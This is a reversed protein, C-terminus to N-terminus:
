FLTEDVNKTKPDTAHRRKTEMDIWDFLTHVKQVPYIRDLDKSIISKISYYPNIHQKQILFHFSDFEVNSEFGAVPGVDHSAGDNGQKSPYKIVNDM